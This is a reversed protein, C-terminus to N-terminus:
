LNNYTHANPSPAISYIGPAAQDSFFVEVPPKTQSGLAMDSQNIRCGPEGWLRKDLAVDRPTIYRNALALFETTSLGKRSHLRSRLHNRPVSIRPPGVLWSVRSRNQHRTPVMGHFQSPAM